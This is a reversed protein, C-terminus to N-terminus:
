FHSPSFQHPLNYTNTGSEIENVQNEENTAIIGESAIMLLQSSKNLHQVVAQPINLGDGRGARRQSRLRKLTKSPPPSNSSSHFGNKELNNTAVVLALYPLSWLRTSIFSSCYANFDSLLCQSDDTASLPNIPYTLAHITRRNSRTQRALEAWTQCVLACSDISRIPLHRFIARNIDYVTTILSHNENNQEDM